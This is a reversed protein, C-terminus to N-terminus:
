QHNIFNKFTTRDLLIEVDVQEAKRIAPYQKEGLFNPSKLNQILVLVLTQNHSHALLRIVESSQKRFPELSTHCIIAFLSHSIVVLYFATPCM